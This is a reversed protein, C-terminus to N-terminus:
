MAFSFQIAYVQIKRYQLYESGRLLLKWVLQAFFGRGSIELLNVQTQWSKDGCDQVM